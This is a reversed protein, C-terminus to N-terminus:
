LSFKMFISNDVDLIPKLRESEYFQKPLYQRGVTAFGLIEFFVFLGEKNTALYVEKLQKSRAFHLMHDFLHFLDREGLGPQIVFSRLLGHEGLIEIGITASLEGEEDEVLLFHDIAEAIGITDLEAKELFAILKEQDETSAVRINMKM